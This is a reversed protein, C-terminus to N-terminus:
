FVCSAIRGPRAPQPTPTSSMRSTVLRVAGPDPAGAVEAFHLTNTGDVLFDAPVHYLSQTPPTQPDRQILWHFPFAQERPPSVHLFVTILALM